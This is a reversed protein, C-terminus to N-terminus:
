EKFIKVRLPESVVVGYHLNTNIPPKQHLLWPEIDPTSNTTKGWIALRAELDYIGKNTIVFLDDARFLAYTEGSPRGHLRSVEHLTKPLEVPEGWLLGVKTKPVPRGSEDFM